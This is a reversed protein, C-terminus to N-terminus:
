GHWSAAAVSGRAAARQKAALATAITAPRFLIFHLTLIMRM